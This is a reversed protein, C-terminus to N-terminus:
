GLIRKGKPTSEGAAHPVGYIAFIAMRPIDAEPPLASVGLDSRWRPTKVGNCDNRQQNPVNDWRPSHCNWDRRSQVPVDAELSLDISPPM